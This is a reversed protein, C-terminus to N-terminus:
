NMFILCVIIKLDFSEIFSYIRQSWNFFCNDQEIQFFFGIIGNGYTFDPVVDLFSILIPKISDDIVIDIMEHANNLSEVTGNEINKRIKGISVSDYTLSLINYLFENWRRIENKMVVLLFADDNKELCIKAYLDWTMVGIRPLSARALSM